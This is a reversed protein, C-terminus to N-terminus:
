IESRFSLLGPAEVIHPSSDVKNLSKCNPCKVITINKYRIGDNWKHDCKGCKIPVVFNDAIGKFAYQLSSMTPIGCISGECQASNINLQFPVLQELYLGDIDIGWNGEPTEVKIYYLKQEVRKSALFVRASEANNGRYVEYTGSPTQRKIIFKPQSAETNSGFLKRLLGM